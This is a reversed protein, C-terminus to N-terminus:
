KAGGFFSRIDSRAPANNRQQPSMYCSRCYTFQQAIFNSCSQCRKKQPPQPKPKLLKKWKRAVVEAVGRQKCNLCRKNTTKRDCFACYTNKESEETEKKKTEKIANELRMRQFRNAVGDNWHKICVCGIYHIEHTQKNRIRYINEIHVGCICNTESEFFSDYEFCNVVDFFCIMSREINNEDKGIFTNTQIQEPTMRELLAKALPYYIDSNRNRRRSDNYFSMTLFVWLSENVKILPM